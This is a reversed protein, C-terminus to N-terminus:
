EPRPRKAGHPNQGYPQADQASWGGAQPGLGPQGPFFAPNFHPQMQPFGGGPMGGMMSGGMPGNMPMGNMPMGPMMPAGGMGGMMNNMGGRGGRGGMGGRMQNGMGGRNYGSNNFGGNAFQNGMNPQFGGVVPNQFGANMGMGNANFNNRNQYGGGGMNGRNNYGGGRGGRYNSNYGGRQNGFNNGNAQGSKAPADKPLTHFPDINPNAYTAHLKKAYSQQGVAFSDIKHKM